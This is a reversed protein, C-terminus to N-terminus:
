NILIFRICYIVSLIFVLVGIILISLNSQDMLILEPGHNNFDKDKINKCIGYKNIKYDDDTNGKCNINKNFINSINTIYDTTEDNTGLLKTCTTFKYQEIDNNLKYNHNDDVLIDTYEM